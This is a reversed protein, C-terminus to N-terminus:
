TVSYPNPFALLPYVSMKHCLANSRRKEALATTMHEFISTIFTHLSPGTDKRIPDRQHPASTQLCAALEPTTRTMQGLSVRFGRYRRSSTVENTKPSYLTSLARVGCGSGADGCGFARFVKSTGYGSGQRCYQFTSKLRM